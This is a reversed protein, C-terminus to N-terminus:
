PKTQRSAPAFVFDGEDNRQVAKVLVTKGDSRVVRCTFSGGKTAAISDPCVVRKPRDGIQKAINDAIAKETAKTDLTNQGCGSLLFAAAISLGAVLRPVRAEYCVSHHKLM